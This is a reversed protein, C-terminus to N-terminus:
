VFPKKKRIGTKINVNTKSFNGQRSILYKKLFFLSSGKCPIQLEGYSQVMFKLVTVNAAHQQQQQQGVGPV